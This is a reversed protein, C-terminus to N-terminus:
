YANVPMQLLSEVKIDINFFPGKSGQIEKCSCELFKMEKEYEAM